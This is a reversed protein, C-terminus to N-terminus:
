ATMLKAAGNRGTCIMSRSWSFDCPRSFASRASPFVCARIFDPDQEFSVERVEGDATVLRGGILVMSLNYLHRGAAYGLWHCPVTQTAVDGFTPM